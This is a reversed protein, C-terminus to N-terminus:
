FKTNSGIGTFNSLKSVQALIKELVTEFTAEM